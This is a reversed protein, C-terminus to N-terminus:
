FNAYRTARFAIRYRHLWFALVLLLPGWHLASVVPAALSPPLFNLWAFSGALPGSMGLWPLPRATVLSYWVIALAAPWLLVVQYDVIRALIQGSARPSGFAAARCMFNGVLRHTIGAAAALTVACLASTASINYEEFYLSAFRHLWLLYGFTAVGLFVLHIIVFAVSRADDAALPLRRYFARPRFLASVTTRLWNVM